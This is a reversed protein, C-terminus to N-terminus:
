GVPYIQPAIINTYILELRQLDITRILAHQKVQLSNNILSKQRHFEFIFALCFHELGVSDCFFRASFIIVAELKPLDLCWRIAGVSCIKM